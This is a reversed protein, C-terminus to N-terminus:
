RGRPAFYAQRKGTAVDYTVGGVLWENPRSAYIGPRTQWQEIRFRVVDSSLGGAARRVSVRVQAEVGPRLLLGKLEAVAAGRTPRWQGNNRRLEALASADSRQADLLRPDITMVIDGIDGFARGNANRPLVLRLTTLAADERSPNRVTFDFSEDADASLDVVNVNRWVVNNNAITNANIDAGESHMPDSSSVWRAVLCFHGTGAISPWPVEVIRTSNANLTVPIAGIQTFNAPWALGSSAQAAYLHLTGNASAGGNHLKVYAWNPSGFEPNQHEHQHVLSTDQSNRVWIYPSEWMPQGATLPEPEAGTDNWRDKMWVDTRNPSSCRFNAVTQATMNLTQANDTPRPEASTGTAVGGVSVAPNSFQSIRPCNTTCSYAMITRWTGEIRFGHNFHYPANDNLDTDWDHRAGMNHGLEHPFSFNISACGRDVVSYASSEFGNGVSSMVYARGCSDLTETLLVVHDAAFSNRLALVAANGKLSTLDTLSNGTEVYNHEATHVLRLRQTVNSNVYGDNTVAVALYVEAEMAAASGASARADDTYLVMIDVNEGSDTSCTDLSPDAGADRLGPRPIPEAEPPFQSQEIQSITINTRSGRLRYTGTASFIAGAVAGNNEVIIAKGSPDGVIDGYWVIGAAGIREQRTRRVNLIRGEPTPLALEGTSLISSSSIGSPRSSVVGVEVEPKPLQGPACGASAVFFM